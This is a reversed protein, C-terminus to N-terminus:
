GHLDPPDAELPPHFTSLGPTEVGDLNLSLEPRIERIKIKVGVHLDPCHGPGHGPFGPAPFVEGSQLGGVLVVVLLKSINGAGQLNIALDGANSHLDHPIVGVSRDSVPSKKVTVAEM